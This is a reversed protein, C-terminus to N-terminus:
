GNDPAKQSCIHLPDLSKVLDQLCTSRFAEEVGVIADEIRRHLPCLEDPHYENGLPCRKVHQIPDVANVVDLVNLETAEPKLRFGGGPGRRAELIGARVLEKLVKGLYHMPVGVAKSIERASHMVGPSTGLYVVARLAYETSQSLLNM